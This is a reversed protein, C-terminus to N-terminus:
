APRAFRLVSLHEPGARRALLRTAALGPLATWLSDPQGAKINEELVLLYVVGRASLLAPIRPLLRDLVERGDRGGAWAASIGTGGVEASPTVM